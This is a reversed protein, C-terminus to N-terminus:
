AAKKMDQATEGVRYGGAAALKLKALMSRLLRVPVFIGPRSRIAPAADARSRAALPKDFVALIFFGLGTLGLLITGITQIIDM